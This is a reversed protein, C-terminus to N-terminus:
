ENIRTTVLVVLVKANRGEVILQKENIQIATQFIEVLVGTAPKRDFIGSRCVLCRVDRPLDVEKAIYVCQHSLM